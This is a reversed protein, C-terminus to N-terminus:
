GPYTTVWTSGTSSRAASVRARRITTFIPLRSIASLGIARGAATASSTAASRVRPRSTTTTLEPAM